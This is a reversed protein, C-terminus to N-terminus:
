AFRLFTKGRQGPMGQPGPLGRDGKHGSVFM